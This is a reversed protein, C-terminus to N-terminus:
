TRHLNLDPPLVYMLKQHKKKKIANYKIEHWIMPQIKVQSPTFVILNCWLM